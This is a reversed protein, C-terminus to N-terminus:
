IIVLVVDIVVLDTKSFFGITLVCTKSVLLPTGTQPNCTLKYLNCSPLHVNTCSLYNKLTNKQVENTSMFAKVVHRNETNCSCITKAVIKRTTYSVIQRSTAVFKMIINLFVIIHPFLCSDVWEYFNNKINLIGVRRVM